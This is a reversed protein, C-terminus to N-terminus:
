VELLRISLICYAPHLAVDSVACPQSEATMHTVLVTLVAGTYQGIGDNFEHLELYDGVKFGRDNLRLDHTRDGALIPSFFKPWSKLKHTTM